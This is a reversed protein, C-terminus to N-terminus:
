GSAIERNDSCVHGYFSQATTDVSGVANEVAFAASITLFTLIVFVTKM